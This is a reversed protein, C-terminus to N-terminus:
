EYGFRNLARPNESWEEEVRVFTELFVKRGFFRELQRRASTGVAKIREGGQGIIIGKQSSREVHIVVGIELHDGSEADQFREVEVAVSYPIEKRTQDMLAERVFEAAIFREAKDTLMDEPFLLGHDPLNDLLVDVFPEVNDGTKASLPVLDAYGLESFRELMPLMLEKPRVVDAKNLVLLKPCELGELRDLVFEEERWMEDEEGRRAAGAFAAADVVHCVLDVEKMAAEAQAVIRRNLTKSSVHMGPTDVFCIQGKEPFTRVGLIRNRTTQPKSTTIALKVGLVRNMLTSKGVNPRGILAVYGAPLMDSPMDLDSGDDNSPDETNPDVGSEATEDHQDTM